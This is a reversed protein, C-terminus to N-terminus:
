ENRWTPCCRSTIRLTAIAESVMPRGRLRTSARHVDLPVTQPMVLVRTARSSVPRVVGGVWGLLVLLGLPVLLVVEVSEVVSHQLVASFMLAGVIALFSVLIVGASGVSSTSTLSCGFGTVVPSLNPFSVTRSSTSFRPPWRIHDHRQSQPVVRATRCLSSRRRVLDHPQM